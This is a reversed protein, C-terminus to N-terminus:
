RNGGKDLHQAYLEKSVKPHKRYDGICTPHEECREQPLARLLRINKM